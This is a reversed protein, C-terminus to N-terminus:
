RPNWTERTAAKHNATHGPRLVCTQGPTFPSADGCFGSVVEGTAPDAPPTEPLPPDGDIVVVGPDDDDIAFGGVSPEVTAAPIAASPKRMDSGAPLDVGTGNGPRPAKERPSPVRGTPPETYGPGIQRVGAGATLQAATAPGIVAVEGPLSVGDSLMAAITIDPVDLDLVPFTKTPQNPRKVSRTAIRLIASPRYGQAALSQLLSVKAPLESAAYFGHTEARWVGIGTLRPLWVSLRTTPKCAEGKQALEVREAVDSPCLCGVEEDRVDRGDRSEVTMGNCRRACGGGKWLEFWQTFSEGPAVLVDLVDAEITLQWQPGQDSAWPQVRGGYVIAAAELVDRRQSTLRFHDLRTPRNGKREGLRIRGVETMRQQITLIPSM